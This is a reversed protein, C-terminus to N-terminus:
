RPSRRARTIPDNAALAANDIGPLLLEDEGLEEIIRNKDAM